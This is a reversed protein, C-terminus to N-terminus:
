GDLSSGSDHTAEVIVTKLSESVTTTNGFFRPSLPSTPMKSSRPVDPVSM